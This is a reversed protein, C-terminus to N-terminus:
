PRRSLFRRVLGGHIKVIGSVCRVKGRSLWVLPVFILGLLTAPAAWLYRLFILRM